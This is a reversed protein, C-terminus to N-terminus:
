KYILYKERTIKFNDLGEQWGARIEEESINKEIQTRFESYGSILEISNSKKWFNEKDPFLEFIKKILAINLQNKNWDFISNSESLNFGYCLEDKLKPNSSGENPTPTFTFLAEKAVSLDPHGIIQFQTNTGRGV